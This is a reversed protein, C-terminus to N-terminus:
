NLIYTFSIGAKTVTPKFTTKAASVVGDVVSSADFYGYGYGVAPTLVLRQNLYISYGYVLGVAAMRGSYLNDNLGLDYISGVVNVGLFHSYLPRKFYYRLEPSVTVQKTSFQPYIDEFPNIITEIGLMVHRSLLVEVSVNPTLAVWKLPDISVSARQAFSFSASLLIIATLLLRKM